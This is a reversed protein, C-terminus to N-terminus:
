LFTWWRCVSRTWVGFVSFVSVFEELNDGWLMRSRNMAVGGCGICFLREDIVSVVMDLVWESDVVMWFGSDERFM